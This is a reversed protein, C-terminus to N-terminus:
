RLNLAPSEAAALLEEMSVFKERPKPQVARASEAADIHRWGEFDVVRVARECLLRDLEPPGPKSPALPTSELDAAIRKVLATADTRNTGVVGRPGHKCWGAAYVGPEVYGEDNSILGRDTDFPVGPFAVSHYGIAAIVSEVPLEFQEGTRTARGGEVRTRDLLLARAHGDGLVAVPAANFLFHIRMPKGVGERGAFGRLIELNRQRTKVEKEPVHPGVDTALAAAEVVVGCRELEGLEALEIPTFSAEVPGRRGILYLDRINSAAIAQEAHECIDSSAREASTKALVRVVDLAVNGNGVVAISSGGLYPDLNRHRPHGNYWGVFAAAGYVGVLEEGPIGLGRDYEAGISLVVLDYIRKLEDYSLDRGVEVNGLFRTGERALTREFARSVAKTNQHDPAIGGRVLGYPTPLRDFIDVRADPWQRVLADATYLGAPGSGVIAVQYKL